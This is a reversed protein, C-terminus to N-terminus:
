ARRSCPCAAPLGSRPRAHTRCRLRGTREHPDGIKARRAGEALLGRAAAGGAGIEQGVGGVASDGAGDFRALRFRAHHRDLVGEVAGHGLREVDEDVLRGELDLALQEDGDDVVENDGRPRGEVLDVEDVGVRLRQGLAASEQLPVTRLRLLRGGKRRGLRDFPGNFARSRGRDRGSARCEEVASLDEGLADLVLLVVGGAEDEDARALGFRGPAVAGRDGELEGAVAGAEERRREGLEGAAADVAGLHLAAGRAGGKPSYM